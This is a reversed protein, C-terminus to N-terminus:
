FRKLIGLRISFYNYDIEQTFNEYGFDRSLAHFKLGPTFSWNKGLPVDIGGALQFGLGHGTDHIIEGDSNETEIHNYLGGARLYYQVPSDGFPHKYQVGLVYGTEALFFNDGGFADNAAFQNWGWGAYVGIHHLFRYHFIGEFGLGTENTTESLNNTALSFGSSFEFGWRSENKQAMSTLSVWFVFMLSLLGKTKM